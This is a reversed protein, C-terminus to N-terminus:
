VVYGEIAQDQRDQEEDDTPEIVKTQKDKRQAALENSKLITDQVNGLSLFMNGRNSLSVVPLKGYLKDYIIGLSIISDKVKKMDACKFRRLDKTIGGAMKYAICELYDRIKAQRLDITQNLFEKIDDETVEEGWRIANGRKSLELANSKDINLIPSPNGPKRRTQKPIATPM